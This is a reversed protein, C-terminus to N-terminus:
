KDKLNIFRCSEKIEPEKYAVRIPNFDKLAALFKEKTKYVKHGIRYHRYGKRFTGDKRKPTHECFGLKGDLATYTMTHENSWATCCVCRFPITSLEEETM